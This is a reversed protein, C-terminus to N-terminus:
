VVRRRPCRDHNLLCTCHFTIRVGRLELLLVVLLLLRLLRMNCLRLLAMYRVLLLVHHACSLRFRLGSPDGFFFLQVRQMLGAHHRVAIRGQAPLLVHAPFGGSRPAFCSWAAQKGGVPGLRRVLARAVPSRISITSGILLLLQIALLLVVHMFLRVDLLLLALLLLVLLLLALLLDQLQLLLVLLLQQLVLPLLLVLLLQACSLAPLCIRVALVRVHRKPLRVARAGRQATCRLLLHRLPSPPSSACLLPHPLALVGQMDCTHMHVEKSPPMGRAAWGWGRICHM